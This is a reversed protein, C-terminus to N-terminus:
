LGLFPAPEGLITAGSPTGLNVHGSTCREMSRENSAFVTPANNRFLSGGSSSVASGTATGSIQLGALFFDAIVERMKCAAAMTATTATEIRPTCEASIALGWCIM